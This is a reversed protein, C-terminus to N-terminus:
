TKRMTGECLSTSLRSDLFSLNGRVALLALLERALSCDGPVRLCDESDKSLARRM